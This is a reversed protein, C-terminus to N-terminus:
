TSIETIPVTGSMLDRLAVPSLGLAPMPSSVQPEQETETM